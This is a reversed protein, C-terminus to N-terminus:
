GITQSEGAVAWFTCLEHQNQCIGITEKKFTPDAHVQQLYARAQQIRQTMQTRRASDHIHQPVGMDSGFEDLLLHAPANIELAQEAESVYQDDQHQHDEDDNDDQHSVQQENLPVQECSAQLNDSVDVTGGTSSAQYDTSFFGAEVIIFLLGIVVLHQFLLKM